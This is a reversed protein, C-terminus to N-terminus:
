SFLVVVIVETLFLKLTPFSTDMLVVAVVISSWWYKSPNGGKVSNRALIWDFLLHAIDCLTVVFIKWVAPLGADGGLFKRIKQVGIKFTPLYAHFIM